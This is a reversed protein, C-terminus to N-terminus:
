TAAPIVGPSERLTESDGWSCLGSRGPCSECLARHPAASVTFPLEVARALRALLRRELAARDASAYRASVSEGRELFWHVIEVSGAGERLVALAYLERQVSYEREVLAELDLDRAVRDSKYDLVFHTGDAEVALLDIVGTVLPEHEGLAFAFPHERRVSVARAVRAAPAAELARTLLALLEERQERGIRIGLERARRAVDEISPRRKASFELSEMLGHVLTGRARAGLGSRAGPPRRAPREEPLRLVRELYYRYGCRELETLSSYSLTSPV